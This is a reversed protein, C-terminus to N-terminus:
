DKEIKPDFFDALQSRVSAMQQADDTRSSDACLVQINKLTSVARRTTQLERHMAWPVAGHVYRTQGLNAGDLESVKTRSWHGMAWDADGEVPCCWVEYPVHHDDEEEFDIAFAEDVSTQAVVLELDRVAKSLRDCEGALRTRERTADALKCRADSAEVSYEHVEKAAKAKAASIEQTADESSSMMQRDLMSITQRHKANQSSIKAMADWLSKPARDVLLNVRALLRLPGDDTHEPIGAETLRAGVKRLDERANGLRSLLDDREEKVRNLTVGPLKADAETEMRDLQMAILPADKVVRRVSDDDTQYVTYSDAWEALKDSELVPEPVGLQRLVNELVTRADCNMDREAIARKCRKKWRKCQKKWAEQTKAHIDDLAKVRKKEEDRENFVRRITKAPSGGDCVYRRERVLQGIAPADFIVSIAMEDMAPDKRFERVADLFRQKGSDARGEEIDLGYLLARELLKGLLFHARIADDGAVSRFRGARIREGLTGSFREANGDQPREDGAKQVHRAEYNDWARMVMEPVACGIGIAEGAAEVVPRMADREARLAVVQLEAMTTEGSTCVEEGGAIRSILNLKDSGRSQAHKLEGQLRECETTLSSYERELRALNERAKDRESESKGDERLQEYSERLFRAAAADASEGARGPDWEELDALANLLEQHDRRKGELRKRLRDAIDARVYEVKPESNFGDVTGHVGHDDGWGWENCRIREPMGSRTELRECEAEAKDACERQFKSEGLDGGQVEKLQECEARLEDREDLVGVMADIAANDPLDTFTEGPQRTALLVIKGVVTALAREASEAREARREAHEITLGIAQDTSDQQGSTERLERFRNRETPRELMMEVRGPLEVGVNNRTRPINMADLAVHSKEVVERVRTLGTQTDKLRRTLALVRDFLTPMNRNGIGADSLLKHINRDERVYFEPVVNVRQVSRRENPDLVDGFMNRVSDRLRKAASPTQGLRDWEEASLAVSLWGSARANPAARGGAVPVPRNEEPQSSEPDIGASPQSKAKEIKPVGEPFSLAPRVRLSSNCRPCARGEAMEDFCNNCDDCWYMDEPWGAPLVKWSGISKGWGKMSAVLTDPPQHSVLDIHELVAHPGLLSSMADVLKSELDRRANYPAPGTGVEPFLGFQLKRDGARQDYVPLLVPSICCSFYVTENDKNLEAWTMIQIQGM